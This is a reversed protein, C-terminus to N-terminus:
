GIVNQTRRLATERIDAKNVFAAIQRLFVIRESGYERLDLFNALM